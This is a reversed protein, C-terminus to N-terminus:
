TAPNECKGDKPNTSQTLYNVVDAHGSLKAVDLATLGSDDLEDTKARRSLLLKVIEINGFSAAEHLPTRGSEQKANVDAGADLLLTVAALDGWVIAVDLPTNGFIGRQNPDVLNVGLFETTHGIRTLLATLDM